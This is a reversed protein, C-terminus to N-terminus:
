AEREESLVQAFAVEVAMVGPLTRLRSMLAEDQRLACEAVVPIRHGELPGLELTPEARLASLAEDVRGPAPLVVLGLVLNAEALPANLPPLSRKV